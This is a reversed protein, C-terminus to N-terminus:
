GGKALMRIYCVYKGVCRFGLEQVVNQVEGECFFTLYKAGAGRCHNLAATLVGRCADERYRGDAFEVGFIEYYAGNGRLYVTGVPIRDEYSVFITWDELCELIRDCNWYTEGDPHYVARFDDFNERTIAAINEDEPLVEYGDFFFSNNWDDEICEFGNEQLFSIADRNCGPFGFYLTYGTFRGELGELWELLEALAQGTGRNINCATLQLYRDEPIWFYAMWGEVEGDLIFLLLESTDGSVSRRADKIFDEKTKVGDAYAPYASKTQDLALEYVFDCYEVVDQQVAKRLM